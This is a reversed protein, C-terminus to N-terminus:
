RRDVLQLDSIVKRVGAVSKAVRWTEAFDDAYSVVGSLHVVGRNATIEIHADYIRLDHLFAVKVRAVIDDDALQEAETRVVPATACACVWILTQITMAVRIARGPAQALM